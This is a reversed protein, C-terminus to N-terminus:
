YAGNADTKISKNAVTTKTEVFQHLRLGNTLNSILLLVLSLICVLYFHHQLFITKIWLSKMNKFNCSQAPVFLCTKCQVFENVLSSIICDSQLHRVDYLIDLSKREKMNIFTTNGYWWNKMNEIYRMTWYFQIIQM